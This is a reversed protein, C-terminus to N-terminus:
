GSTFEPWTGPLLDAAETLNLPCVLKHMLLFLMYSVSKCTADRQLMMSANCPTHKPSVENTSQFSQIQDRKHLLEAKADTCRQIDQQLAAQVDHLVAM